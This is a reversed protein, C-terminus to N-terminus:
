RLWYFGENGTNIRSSFNMDLLIVDYSKLDTVSSIGNPNQLTTVTKYVDQLLLELASLVGKNDDVILIKGSQLM